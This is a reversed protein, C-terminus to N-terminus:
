FGFPGAPIPARLATFLFYGLVVVSVSYLAAPILRKREVGALLAFMMAALTIVFGLYTYLATAAAALALVAAAHKLDDWNLARFSESQAAGLALLAGMGVILTAVVKPLFGAGPFALDGFPLDGSLAFVLLGAAVLFAGAVHDARVTM